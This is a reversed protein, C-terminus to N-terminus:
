NKNRLKQKVCSEERVTMRTCNEFFKECKESLFFLLLAQRLEFTSKQAFSQPKWESDNENLFRLSLLLRLSPPPRRKAGLTLVSKREKM